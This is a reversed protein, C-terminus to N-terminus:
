VNQTGKPHRFVQVPHGLLTGDREHTAGLRLALIRSRTNGADIYSIVGDLDFHAAGYSRATLAAEHALGTGEYGDHINWGLEPEEWGPRNIFGVAGIMRDDAKHHIHWFGYGRLLWHGFNGSIIRWCSAHDMPGGVFHSRPSQYFDALRDHDFELPARLLLRETEVTPITFNYATM